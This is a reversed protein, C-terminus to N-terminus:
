QRKCCLLQIRAVVPSPLSEDYNCFANGDNLQITAGFDYTVARVGRTDTALVISSASAVYLFGVETLPPLAYGQDVIGWQARSDCAVQIGQLAELFPTGLNYSHTGAQLVVGGNNCTVNTSCTRPSPDYTTSVNCAVVKVGLPCPSNRSTIPRIPDGGSQGPGIWWPTFFLSTSARSCGEVPCNGRPADAVVAPCNAIILVINVAAVLALCPCRFLFDAKMIM